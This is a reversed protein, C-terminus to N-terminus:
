LTVVKGSYNFENLLQQSISKAYTTATIVIADCSQIRSLSPAEIPSAFGDIYRGHKTADSDFLCEIRLYSLAEAFYPAKQGAGWLGVRNSNRLQDRVREMDQKHKANMPVRGSEDLKVKQIYVDIECTGSDRQLDLIEFGSQSVTRILSSPTFYNVHESIVSSYIGRRFIREGDPVNICGVAHLTLYKSILKLFQVPQFIHELVQFCGFAGASIGLDVDSRLFDRHVKLGKSRAIEANDSPEVGVVSEFYRSAILLHTGVGCGVDLFTTSQRSTLLSSLKQIRTESVGM